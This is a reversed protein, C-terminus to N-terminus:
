STLELSQGKTSSGSVDTENILSVQHMEDRWKAFKQQADKLTVQLPNDEPLMPYGKNFHDIWVLIRAMYQVRTLGRGQKPTMAILGYLMAHYTPDNPFDKESAMSTTALIVASLRQRLDRFPINNVM